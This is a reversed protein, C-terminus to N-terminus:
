KKFTKLQESHLLKGTGSKSQGASKAIKAGEHRNAFKGSTTTFGRQGTLGISDHNSGKKAQVIKGSSEKIAPRKIKNM